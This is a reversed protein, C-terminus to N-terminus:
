CHLIICLWLDWSEESSPSCVYYEAGRAEKRLILFFEWILSPEGAELNNQWAKEFGRLNVHIKPVTQLDSFSGWLVMVTSQRGDVKKMEGLICLLQACFLVACGQTARAVSSALNRRGPELSGRVMTSILPAGGLLCVKGVKPYVRGSLMGM